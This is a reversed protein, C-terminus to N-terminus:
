ELNCFQSTTLKLWDHLAGPSTFIHNQDRPVDEFFVCQFAISIRVIHKMLGLCADDRACNRYVTPRESSM